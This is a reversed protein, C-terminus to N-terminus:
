GNGWEGVEGRKKLTNEASRLILFCADFIQEEDQVGCIGGSQGVGAGATNCTGMSRM